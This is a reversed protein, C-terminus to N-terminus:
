QIIVLTGKDPVRPIDNNMINVFDYGDYGGGQFLYYQQKLVINMVYSVDYGDYSGGYYLNAPPAAGVLVVTSILMLLVATPRVWTRTLKKM